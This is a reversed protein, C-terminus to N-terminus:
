MDRQRKTEKSLKEIERKRQQKQKEVTKNRM